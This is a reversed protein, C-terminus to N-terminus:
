VVSVTVKGILIEDNKEIEQIEGNKIPLGNLFTGNTSNLDMICIKNDKQIFRCHIRSVSADAMILSAEEKLKGVTCPFDKLVFQKKRGREKWQLKLCEENEDSHFFVTEKMDIEIEQMEETPTQTKIGGFSIMFAILFLIALAIGSLKLRVSLMPLFSISFFLVALLLFVKKIEKGIKKETFQEEEVQQLYSPIKSMSSKEEYANTEKTQIQEINGIKQRKLISEKELIAMFQYLSFHAQSQQRYFLYAANVGNEDRHNIKELFFEALKHLKKEESFWPLILVYLNNNELDRFIFEPDMIVMNEHLLYSRVEELICTMEQFFTIMDELQWEKEQYEQQLNRKGEIDVYLYGKGDEMRKQCSLVGSIKNKMLMKFPYLNTDTNEPIEIMMYNGYLDNRYRVKM